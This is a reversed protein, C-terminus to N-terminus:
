NNSAEDVIALERAEDVISLAQEQVEVVEPDEQYTVAVATTPTM